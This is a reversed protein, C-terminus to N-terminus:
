PSLELYKLDGNTNDYYSIHVLGGGLALSSFAGVLAFKGDVHPSTWNQLRLCDAACSAYDLDGTARDWHSIHIRFNGGVAISPDRGADGLTDVTITRWSGSNTCDAACRAYKLDSSTLLSSGTQYGIHLVGNADVALSTGSKAAGNTGDITLKQWNGATGCNTLCTAYRLVSRGGIVGRYSIHRRGDGDVTISSYQGDPTDVLVRTWSGALTCNTLCTAYKLGLATGDSSNVHYSVHRWGDPTVVLATSIGAVPTADVTVKQWAAATTCNTQDLCTAYKLVGNTKDYYTVHRRGTGDVELSTFLGINATGAGAITVKQWNTASTCGSGCTAYKLASNTADYYTVHQRGGATSVLSTYLGVAGVADLATTGILTSALVAAVPRGPQPESHGPATPEELGCAPLVAMLVPPVLTLPKRM